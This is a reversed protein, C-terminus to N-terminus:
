EPRLRGPMESLEETYHRIMQGLEENLADREVKKAGTTWRSADEDTFVPM